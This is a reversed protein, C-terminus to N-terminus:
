RLYIFEKLNFLAHCIDQWIALSTLIDDPPVDHLVAVQLVASTWRKNEDPNLKRSLAQQFMRQLRVATSPDGESILRQAWLRAQLHVFDNNLLALAQLPTNTVDRRGTPIKPKPQNFLALLIPPEMLTIKTYLSRRGEGDLPGSVLRKQPDEHARYPDIPRGHLQRDLQGSTTLLSDRLEEATLRRRPFHHLLRNTPDVQVAHNNELSAQCWTESLVLRRVLQKVSWDNAMFQSSLYDLMLPHTPLQGLKGFNNPTAVIGRGFLWYWIRNVMVRATLPNTSSAVLKALERRGSNPLQFGHQTNTLVELYGRPVTEAPRDFNGGIHLPYDYGPDVDALGNVTQPIALRSELQRYQHVLRAIQPCDDVAWQNTLLRQALLWNILRVDASTTNGHAWAHISNRFWRAYHSAVTEISDPLAGAYLGEFRTLPDQPATPHHHAVVRTVGLWSTPNGIEEDTLNEGLGMRPPFNPNSTKTALELYVKRQKMEPHTSLRLWDPRKFDLYKQRETLFANDVVTRHASYQGAVLEFSLYPQDFQSLSPSRLAGNLRPSLSHSYFGGLLLQGIAAPGELAVLFDGCDTRKQLGVGDVSWGEPLQHRFDAVVTFDRENQAIREKRTTAYQAALKQWPEQPPGGARVLQFWAYRPDELSPELSEEPATPVQWSSWLDDQNSIGTQSLGTQSSGDNSVKDTTLTALLKRDFTELEVLWCAALKSRLKHKLDSLQLLIARNRNPLDLTNTVWRSSIFTGALAYYDRQSVADLKHDHCRACAVTTAQFAKSFTNIQDDLMEQHVGNFDASDGHRKEGLLFFLTGIRSLNIAQQPDIRPQDLLDGAIQERVLQDYPVDDNFANTLYDRYRWAGKVPIDWEYGYTDGYRVVDMWHRAFHEGFHPSALLRDVLDEWATPSTSDLFSGMQELTPPLGLLAFSLRRYLAAKDARRAPRLQSSELRALIFRDIPRQSWQTQEVSPLPPQVVPQWSWWKHREHLKAQWSEDKVAGIDPPSARPDVAGREIWRVLNAIETATLKRDPPMELSEHRVATVLLSQEAQGPILAPGSEGGTQWGGRWDLRLGGGPTEAAASHCEYCHEILIPRVHHEFFELDALETAVESAVTSPICFQAWCAGLLFLRAYPFLRSQQNSIRTTLFM